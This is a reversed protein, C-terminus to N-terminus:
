QFYSCGCLPHRAFNERELDVLDNLHLYIAQGYDKYIGDIYSLAQAAVLAAVFHAGIVPLDSGEELALQQSRMFGFRDKEHLQMCRLCPTQGGKIIPSIAVEDGLHPEVVLHAQGSNMWDVTREIDMEGCHIILNPIILNPKTASEGGDLFSLQDMQDDLHQYFHNGIERETISAFGIDCPEIYAREHRDYFLISGVGSTRLHLTLLTAVRGRGSIAITAATRSRLFSAGSRQAPFDIWDCQLLESDIRDSKVQAAMDRHHPLASRRLFHSLSVNHDTDSSRLFGAAAIAALFEAIDEGGQVREGRAIALLASREFPTDVAIRASRNGLIYGHESSLLALGARLQNERM